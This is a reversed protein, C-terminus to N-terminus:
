DFDNSFEDDPNTEGALIVGTDNLDDDEQFETDDDFEDEFDDDFADDFNAEEFGEFVEDLQVSLPDCRVDMVVMGGENDASDKARPFNKYRTM